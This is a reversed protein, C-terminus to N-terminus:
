SYCSCCQQRTRSSRERPACFSLVRLLPQAAYRRYRIKRTYPKTHPCHTAKPHASSSLCWHEHQYLSLLPCMILADFCLTCMTGM